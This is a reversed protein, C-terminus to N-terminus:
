MREAISRQEDHSADTYITTTEIAAHRMWKSPMNLPVTAGIAAVGYGHRLGKRHGEAGQHPRGGDRGEREALGDNPEM